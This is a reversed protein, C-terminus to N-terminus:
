LINWMCVTRITSIHSDGHCSQKHYDFTSSLNENCSFWKLSLTIGDYQIGDFWSYFHLVDIKNRIYYVGVWTSFNGLFYYTFFYLKLIISRHIITCTCAHVSMSWKCILLCLFLFLVLERTPNYHTPLYVRM